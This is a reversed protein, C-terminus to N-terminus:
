IVSVWIIPEFQKTMQKIISTQLKELPYGEGIKKDENTLLAQLVKCCLPSKQKAPLM